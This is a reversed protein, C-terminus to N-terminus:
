GWEDIQRLGLPRMRGRGDFQRGWAAGDAEIQALYNPWEEFFYRFPSPTRTKGANLIAQVVQISEAEIKVDGLHLSSEYCM